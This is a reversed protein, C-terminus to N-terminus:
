LTRPIEIKRLSGSLLLDHTRALALIHLLLEKGLFLQM